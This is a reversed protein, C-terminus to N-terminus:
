AAVDRETRRRQRYGNQAVIFGDAEKDKIAAGLAVCVAGVRMGRQQAGHRKVGSMLAVAIGAGRKRCGRQIREDTRMQGTAVFDDKADIMGVTGGDAEILAGTKLVGAAGIVTQFPQLENVVAHQRM